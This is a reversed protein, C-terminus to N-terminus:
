PLNTRWSCIIKIERREEGNSTGRMRPRWKDSSTGWVMMASSGVGRTVM